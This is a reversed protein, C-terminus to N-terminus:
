GIVAKRADVYLLFPGLVAGGTPRSVYFGDNGKQIVCGSARLKAEARKTDERIKRHHVALQRRVAVDLRRTRDIAAQLSPDM